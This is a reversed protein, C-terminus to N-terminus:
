DLLRIKLQLEKIVIDHQPTRNEDEELKAIAEKISGQGYLDMAENFLRNPDAKEAAELQYMWEDEEMKKLGRVESVRKREEKHEIIAVTRVLMSSAVDARVKADVLLETRLRANEREVLHVFSAAAGICCYKKMGDVGMNGCQVEGGACGFSVQGASGVVEKMKELVGQACRASAARCQPTPKVTNFSAYFRDANFADPIGKSLKVAELLPGLLASQTELLKEGGAGKAFTSFDCINFTMFAANKKAVGLGTAAKAKAAAQMESQMRSQRSAQTSRSRQSSSKHPTAASARRDGGSGSLARDKPSASGFSANMDEEEEEEQDDDDVLVSAPMYSRYERLNQVMKIFSVQMNGVESIKSLPKCEDVVELKMTAVQAMEERLENIPAVIKSAAVVSMAMLLIASGAVVIYLILRDSDLEDQVEKDTQAIEAKMAAEGAAVEDRIRLNSAEIDGRIRAQERDTEGLVYERDVALFFFWDTQGTERDNFGYRPVDDLLESRLRQVAVFFEEGDNAYGPLATRDKDEERKYGNLYQLRDPHAPYFSDSPHEPGPVPEVWGGGTLNADLAFSLIKGDAAGFSGNVHQSFHRAVARIIPDSAQDVHRSKMVWAPVENPRYVFTSANGHSVAIMHNRQDLDPLPLKSFIWNRELFLAIRYRAKEGGVRITNLFARFARVDVAATISGIKRGSNDGWNVAVAVGMFSATSVLPTWRPQGVPWFIKMLTTTSQDEAEWYSYCYGDDIVGKTHVYMSQRCGQQYWTVCTKGTNPSIKGYRCSTPELRAPKGPQNYLRGDNVPDLTYNLRGGPLMSGYHYSGRVGNSIGLQYNHIADKPKGATTSDEFFNRAKNSYTNINMGTLGADTLRMYMAWGSRQISDLFEATDTQWPPDVSSMIDYWQMIGRMFTKLSNQIGDAVRGRTVSLMEETRNTIAETAGAFCARIGESGATRTSNLAAAGQDFSKRLADAGADKTKDLATDGSTVSIFTCVFATIAICAFALTIILLKVSLAM